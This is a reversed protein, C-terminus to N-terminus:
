VSQKDANDKPYTGKRRSRFGRGMAAWIFTPRRTEASLRPTANKCRQLVVFAITNTRFCPNDEAESVM